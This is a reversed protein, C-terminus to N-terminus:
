PHRRSNKPLLAVPWGVYTAAFIYSFNAALRDLALWKEQAEDFFNNQKFIHNPWPRLAPAARANINSLPHDHKFIIQVEDIM